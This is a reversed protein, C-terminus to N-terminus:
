MGEEDEKLVNYLYNESKWVRPGRFLIESKVFVILFQEFKMGNYNFFGAVAVPAAILMCLWSAIENGIIKHTLLYVLLAVVVSGVSCFFQRVTLGFFITEQYDRIEKNVRVEM